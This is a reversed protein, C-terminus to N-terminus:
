QAWKLNVNTIGGTSAGGIEICEQWGGGERLWLCAVKVELSVASTVGRIRERCWIWQLMLVWNGSRLSISYSQPLISRWRIVYSYKINEWRPLQVEPAKLQLNSDMNLFRNSKNCIIRWIHGDILFTNYYRIGWNIMRVKRLQKGKEISKNAPLSWVSWVRSRFSFIPPWLTKIKM